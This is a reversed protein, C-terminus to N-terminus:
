REHALQWLSGCWLLWYLKSFKSCFPFQECIGGPVLMVLMVVWTSNLPYPSFIFISRGLFSGLGNKLCVQFVLEIVLGGKVRFAFGEGGFLSSTFFIVLLWNWHLWVNKKGAWDFNEIQLLQPARYHCLCSPTKPNGDPVVVIFAWLLALCVKVNKDNLHTLPIPILMSLMVAWTSSLASPSFIFIPWGVFSGLGNNLCAQFFLEIVLGGKM